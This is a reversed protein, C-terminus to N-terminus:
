FEDFFINHSKLWLINIKLFKKNWNLIRNLQLRITCRVSHALFVQYGSHSFNSTGKRRSTPRSPLILFHIKGYGIKVSWLISQHKKWANKSGISHCPPTHFTFLKQSFHLFFHIIAFFLYIFDTNFIGSILLMELKLWLSIPEMWVETSANMAPWCHRTSNTSLASPVNFAAPPIRLLDSSTLSTALFVLFSLSCCLCCSICLFCPWRCKMWTDTELMWIAQQYSFFRVARCKSFCWIKGM